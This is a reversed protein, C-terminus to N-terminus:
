YRSLLSGDTFVTIIVFSVKSCVQYSASTKRKCVISSELKKRTLCTEVNVMRNLIKWHCDDRNWVPPIFLTSIGRGRRPFTGNIAHVPECLRDTPNRLRLQARSRISFHEIFVIPPYNPSVCSPRHVGNFRRVARRTQQSLKVRFVPPPLPPLTRRLLGNRKKFPFRPPSFRPYLSCWPYLLPFTVRPATERRTM